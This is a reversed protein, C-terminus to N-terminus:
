IFEKMLKKFNQLYGSKKEKPKEEKKEKEKVVKPEQKNEIEEKKVEVKVKTKVPNKIKFHEKELVELLIGLATSYSPAAQSMGRLKVPTGVKVKYNLNKALEEVM